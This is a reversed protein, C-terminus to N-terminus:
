PRAVVLPVTMEHESLGGHVGVLAHRKEGPLADMITWDEKMALAYHGIRDHLRPAPEGLGFWGNEVLDRSRYLGMCDTFHAAIYDEFQTTRDPHVYCWALRREGCLPLMLTDALEPHDDLKIVRHPPSDVFGHDATVLVLANEGRLDTLLQGFASDLRGFARSVEASAIGHDHALADLTPWYAHVLRRRAGWPQRVLDTVINLCHELNKYGYRSALGAFAHNFDSDAIYEPCVLHCDMALRDSLPHPRLLAMPDVGCQRLVPGGHRPVLPLVALISGIERFFMHWGTLAHQQAPEGTLFVTNASATTSPFVSTLRGRLHGKLPGSGGLRQLTHWGLGDVVLLVVTRVASLEELPLLPTPPYPAADGGATALLSAMLNVISGGRYDPLYPWDIGDKRSAM